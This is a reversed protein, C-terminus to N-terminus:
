EFDKPDFLLPSRSYENNLNVLKKLLSMFVDREQETLPALIREQVRMISPASDELLENGKPTLNIFKSRRDHPSPSRSILGRSVLRELVAGLTSKDYAVLSSLKTADINPVSRIVILVAYQVSTLDFQRCEEYLLADTIQQARRVLHGPLSYLRLMQELDVNNANSSSPDDM